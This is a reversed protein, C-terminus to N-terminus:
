ELERGHTFKRYMVQKWEAPQAPAEKPKHRYALWTKGYTDRDGYGCAAGATAVFWMKPTEVIHLIAWEATNNIMSVCWVPEGDMERLEELTLPIEPIAVHKDSLRRGCKPCFAIQAEWDGGELMHVKGDSEIVIGDNCADWALVEGSNCVPCGADREQQARLAAIAVEFAKAVQVPLGDAYYVLAVINRAEETTM